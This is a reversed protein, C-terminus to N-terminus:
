HMAFLFQVVVHVANDLEAFISFARANLLFLHSTSPTHPRLGWSFNEIFRMKFGRPGIRVDFDFAARRTRDAHRSELSNAADPETEFTMRSEFDSPVRRRWLAERPLVSITDM